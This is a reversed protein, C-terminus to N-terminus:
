LFSQRETIEGQCPRILPEREWTGFTEEFFGPSWGLEELGTVESTVPLSRVKMTVVIDTDKMEVPVELHLIGDSGV